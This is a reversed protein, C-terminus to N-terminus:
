ALAMLLELDDEDRMDNFMALLRQYHQSQLAQDYAESQGTAEAYAEVVPLSIELEPPEDQLAQAAAQATAYVRLTGDVEAFFRRKRPKDDYWGVPQTTGIAAQLTDAGDAWDASFQVGAAVLAVQAALVDAGDTAALSTAVLVGVQASATDAGDSSASSAGVVVGLAAVLADAGDTSASSAAVSPAAQAALVDAGDTIAASASITASTVGVAASLVDAGDTAALSAAVVPAAQAALTDAGDSVAASLAVRPGAQASLVDAGETAAASFAVVAGVQAALADAGDALAASVSIGSAATWGAVFGGFPLAPQNAQESAPADFPVGAPLPILGYQDTSSM